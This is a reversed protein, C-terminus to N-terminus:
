KEREANCIRNYDVDVCVPGLIAEPLIGGTGFFIEPVPTQGGLRIRLVFDKPSKLDIDYSQYFAEDMKKRNLIFKQSLEENVMVWIYDAPFFSPVQVEFRYKGHKVEPKVRSGNHWQPILWRIVPMNTKLNSNEEDNINKPTREAHSIRYSKWADFFKGELASNSIISSYDENKLSSDDERWLFHDRERQCKVTITENNSITSTTFCSNKKKPSDIYILYEQALLAIKFPHDLTLFSASLITDVDLNQSPIVERWQWQQQSEKLQVDQLTEPPRFRRGLRVLSGPPINEPRFSLYGMSKQTENPLHESGETVLVTVENETPIVATVHGGPTTMWKQIGDEQITHLPTHITGTSGPIADTDPTTTPAPESVRQEHLGACGNPLLPALLLTVFLLLMRPQNMTNRKRTGKSALHGAM